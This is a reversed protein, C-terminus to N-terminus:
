SFNFKKLNNFHSGDKKKEKKLLFYLRPTKVTKLEIIMTVGSPAAFLYQLVKSEVFSGEDSSAKSSHIFIDKPYEWRM